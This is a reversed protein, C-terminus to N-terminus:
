QFALYSGALPFMLPVHEQLLEALRSADPPSELIERGLQELRELQRSKQRSTEVAWSLRRALIAVLVLGFVLFLYLDIGFQAYLRSLSHFPFRWSHCGWPLLMFRLLQQAGSPGTLVMQAWIGYGLYFAWILVMVLFNVV